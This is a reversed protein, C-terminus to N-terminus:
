VGCGGRSRRGWCRGVVRGNWRVYHAGDGAVQATGQVQVKVREMGVEVGYGGAQTRKEKVSVIGAECGSVLVTGNREVYASVVPATSNAHGLGTAPTYQFWVLSFPGIHAHGWSWSTMLTQFPRSGWNKDHYGFGTFRMAEGDVIMDVTAKSAPVIDVWGLYPGLLLSLDFSRPKSCASGQWGGTGEWVGSSLDRDGLVTADGPVAHDVVVSGDPLSAWVYSLLVSSSNAPVLPFATATATFFTLVLSVNPNSSSIADFYWWEFVTRNVEDLKPATLDSLSLSPATFDVLVPYPVPLPDIAKIYEATRQSTTTLLFVPLLSLSLFLPYHHHHM